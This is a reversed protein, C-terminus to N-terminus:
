NMRALDLLMGGDITSLGAVSHGGGRVALLLDHKRAFRVAAVVDDTGSAVVTVGPTGEHMANYVARIDGNPSEAATLVAGGVQGRLEEVEVDTLAAADGAFTAVRVGEKHCM